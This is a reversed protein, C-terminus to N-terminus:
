PLTLYKQWLLFVAVVLNLIMKLKISLKVCRKLKTKWSNKKAYEKIEISRDMDLDILANEIM